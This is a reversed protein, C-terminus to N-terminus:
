VAMEIENLINYVTEKVYLAATVPAVKGPLSAAWMVKLGEKKSAEFDVGFPKSALDIILCDGNVYKLNSKDLIIEPVTNVILDMRGLYKNIHTFFLPTYGFSRIMAADDHRRTVCFVNAGIGDLMKALIKGIRGYGTIMVNSSHLTTKMEEFAIQIAGEATPIANLIAMENRQYIDFIFFNKEKAQRLVEEPIRGAVFIQGAEMASFVDGMAVPKSHFPANLTNNDSCCPIPGVVVECHQVSKELDTSFLLKSGQGASYESFGFVEVKKGDRVLHEALAINRMDGGLVLFKNQYM